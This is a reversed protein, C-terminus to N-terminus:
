RAERAICRTVDTPRLMSSAGLADCQSQAGHLAACVWDDDRNMKGTWGGQRGPIWGEASGMPRIPSSIPCTPGLSGRSGSSSHHERCLCFATRFRARRRVRGAGGTAHGRQRGPADRPESRRRTRRRRIGLEPLGGHRADAAGICGATCAGTAQHAAAATRWASHAVASWRRAAQAPMRAEESVAQTTCRLAELQHTRARAPAARLSPARARRPSCAGEGPAASVQRSQCGERFAASRREAAKPASQAARACPLVRSRADARARAASVRAHRRQLDSGLLCKKM